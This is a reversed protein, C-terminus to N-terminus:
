SREYFAPRWLGVLTFFFLQDFTILHKRVQLSFCSKNRFFFRLKFKLKSVRKDIHLKFSLNEDTLVGLYKYSTVMEIEVGYVTSLRPLHSPLQKGNSFLMTKSKHANLVLKLPALHFKVTDFASQLMELSKLASSSSCFFVTDDAYLHSMGDSLIDCPNDVYITFLLPGLISGQPVGKPVPLILFFVRRGSCM